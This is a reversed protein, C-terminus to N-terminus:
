FDSIEAAWDIDSPCGEVDITGPTWHCKALNLHDDDLLPIGEPYENVAYGMYANPHDTVSPEVNGCLNGGNRM